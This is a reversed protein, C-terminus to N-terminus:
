AACGAAAGGVAGCGRRFGIRGAEGGTLLLHQAEDCLAQGVFLHGLSQDDARSGDLLVELRDVALQLDGGTACGRAESDLVLEASGRPLGDRLLSSDGVLLSCNSQSARRRVANGSPTTQNEGM